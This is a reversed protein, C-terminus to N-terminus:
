SRTFLPLAMGITYCCWSAFLGGAWFWRTEFFRNKLVTGFIGLYSIVAFFGALFMWVDWGAWASASIFWYGVFLSLFFAVVGGFSVCGHGLPYSQRATLLPFIFVVTIVGWFLVSGIFDRM